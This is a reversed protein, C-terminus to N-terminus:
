KNTKKSKFGKQSQKIQQKEGFFNLRGGSGRVSTKRQIWVEEGLGRYKSNAAPKRFLDKFKRFENNDPIDFGKNKESSKKIFFTATLDKLTRATGVNLADEKILNEGIIVQKKKDIIGM